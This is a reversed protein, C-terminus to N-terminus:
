PVEPSTIFYVELFPWKIDINISTWVPFPGFYNTWVPFPGFYNTLRINVPWNPALSAQIESVQGRILPGKYVPGINLITCVDM